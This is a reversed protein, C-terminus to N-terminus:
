ESPPPGAPPLPPPTYGKWKGDMIFDSMKAEGSRKAKMYGESTPPPQVLEVSVVERQQISDKILNWCMLDDAMTFPGGYVERVKETIAQLV